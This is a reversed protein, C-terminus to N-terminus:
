YEPKTSLTSFYSVLLERKANEKNYWGTILEYANKTINEVGGNLVNEVKNILQNMNGYESLIGTYGDIIYDEPAGCNWTAVVTGSLIAEIAPFCLGEAASPLIVIKARSIIEKVEEPSVGDVLMLKDGFHSKAMEALQPSKRPFMVIDIDKTSIKFDEKNFYPSVTSWKIKKSEIFGRTEELEMNGGKLLFDDTLFSCRVAEICYTLHTMNNYVWYHNEFSHNSVLAWNQIYTVRRVPVSFFPKWNYIEPQVVIDGDSILPSNFMDYRFGIEEVKRWYKSLNSPDPHSYPGVSLVYSEIGLENALDCLRYFNNIGGTPVSVPPSLFWIKEKRKVNDM